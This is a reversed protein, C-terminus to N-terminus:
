GSILVCSFDNESDEHLRRLFLMNHLVGAKNGWLISWKTIKLLPGISFYSHSSKSNWVLDPFSFYLLFFFFYECCKWRGNWVTPVATFAPFQQRRQEPLREDPNRDGSEFWWCVACLPIRSNSIGETGEGNKVMESVELSSLLSLIQSHLRTLTLFLTVSLSSEPAVCTGCFWMQCILVFFDSVTWITEPFKWFASLREKLTYYRSARIVIQVRMLPKKFGPWVSGTEWCSGHARQPKPFPLILPVDMEGSPIALDLMSSKKVPPWNCM